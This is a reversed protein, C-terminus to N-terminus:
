IFDEMKKNVPSLHKAVKGSRQADEYNSDHSLNGQKRSNSM